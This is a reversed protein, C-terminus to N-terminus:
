APSHDKGFSCLFRSLLNLTYYYAKPTSSQRPGAVNLIRIGEDKVFIRLSEVAELFPTKQADVLLYPKQHKKLYDVTKKTGGKLLHYFIVLTADSELVNKLTRDEYGGYSLEILPYKLDIRGDEAQRGRPCFGGCDIGLNLAADLAARDVGTQGGSIIKIM